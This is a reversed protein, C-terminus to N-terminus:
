HIIVKANHVYNAGEIQVIYLGTRLHGVQITKVGSLETDESYVKRGNLDSISVNVEGVDIVSSINLLDNTPNPYIRFNIDLNTNANGLICDPTTPVDFAEVGDNVSNNSGQDASLGLGRRAFAEWILCQNAGGNALQDAALIADRGTVFGPSCPQLKLGDIVLQMAINNGGTGNYFDPDFGYLDILDWTMEWLMGAWVEGVCHPFTCGIIDSYTQPNIAFDTSYPYTRIGTGTTTQGLVYTGIGRVDEPQDGPEITLMLGFWDSWGEGMQEANQLCGAAGPGGTLRNSIGHGYEHTIIGNDVDGDLSPGPPVDQISGNITGSILETIFAEGDAQSVMLCPITVSGGVAGGGMLIPDGPINNVMIVAVAGENQAALSKFGFECSGRRIVAIKGVLSAGNTIPDCADYPDTSTGSNDDEVLVFDATLPTSPLPAGYNAALGIYNGALPGNNVTVTELLASPSWLFMQMRPNGGDPPTAFNANNTGSGDQADAFVADGQLGGNGYNNVQFNGSSEDFGYQYWVDHIINNWYFLNTTIADLMNNPPNVFDYPFDFELGAGGDPSNGTGNNGNVDEQAWVNNGRTITYEAGATGDTDHWGFPSAVPDSPESVIQESGHSPSEIPMPFVRYQPVMLNDVMGMEREVSFLASSTSDQEKLSSHTHPGSGFECNVTWDDVDLLVGTMADIRVSYYHTAELLYISLDWALRLSNNEVSQYVLKVPINELSINGNTFEYNHGDASLLELGAPSSIGLEYAAKVIASYPTIGPTVSNAKTSLNATFIVNANLVQNNRIAFNSVSNYIEIGQYNQSVYVNYLQMSNSFSQSNISIDAIDQQQLGMETRNTDLYASIVGEFDQANVLSVSFLIFYILNKM